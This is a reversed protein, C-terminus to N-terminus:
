AANLQKKIKEIDTGPKVWVITKANIRVSVLGTLDAQKIIVKEEKLFKQAFAKEKQKQREQVAVKKASVQKKILIKKRVRLAAKKATKVAPTKDEKKVQRGKLGNQNLSLHEARSILKLNSLAVNLTNDDKFRLVHGEAIAKGAKKWLYVHYPVWQAKNVRIWYYLKGRNDIRLALCRDHKSNHPVNGSKFRTARTAEIAEPTMFDKQQLGKNFPKNGKKIYSDEKFKKIVEAPVVIKLIKMRQRAAGECRGLMKAMRKAPITLYNDLLFQDEHPQFKM